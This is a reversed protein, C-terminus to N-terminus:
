PQEGSVRRSAGEVQMIWRNEGNKMLARWEVREKGEGIHTLAPGPAVLTKWPSRKAMPAIILDLRGADLDVILPELAGQRMIPRASNQQALAAVLRQAEPVLKPDTIGIRLTRSQQIRESSHEPDRPLADCAGLILLLLGAIRITM